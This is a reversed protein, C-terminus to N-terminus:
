YLLLVLEMHQVKLKSPTQRQLELINRNGTIVLTRSNKSAESHDIKKVTKKSDTSTKEIQTPITKIGPELQSVKNEIWPLVFGALFLSKHAASKIKRKWDTKRTSKKVESTRKKPIAM